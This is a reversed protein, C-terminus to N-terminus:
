SRSTVRLGGTAPASFGRGAAVHAPARNRSGTAPSPGTSTFTLEQTGLQVAEISERESGLSANYFTQIKYRGNTRKEVERAFVDIGVGQHSTQATSINIKMVTQAAAGAVFGFALAAGLALQSFKM